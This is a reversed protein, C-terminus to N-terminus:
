HNSAFLKRFRAQNKQQSFSAYRGAFEERAQHQRRELGDILMGMVLLTDPPVTGEAVMQHSFTKLTTVQVEYDQFNGLNDQLTKLVRILEKINGAPYLSLFFEM